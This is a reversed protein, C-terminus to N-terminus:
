PVLGEAPRCYLCSTPTPRLAPGPSQDPRSGTGARLEPTWHAPQTRSWAPQTM